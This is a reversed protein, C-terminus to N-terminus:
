IKGLNLGSFLGSLTLLIVIVCMQFWLPLTKEYTRLKVGPEKGQHIWRTRGDTSLAMSCIYFAPLEDDQEDDGIDAPDNIQGSLSPLRFVILASFNTMSYKNSVNVNVTFPLDECDDGRQRAISVFRFQSADSFDDGFLRVTVQSDRLLVFRYMYFTPVRSILFINVSKGAQINPTGDADYSVGKSDVDEVRLGVIFASRVTYYDDDVAYRQQNNNIDSTLLTSGTTVFVLPSKSPRGSSLNVVKYVFNIGDPTTEAAAM